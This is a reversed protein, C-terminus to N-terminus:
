IISVGSARLGFVRFGPASHMCVRSDWLAFGLVGFGTNIYYSSSRPGSFIVAVQLFHYVPLYRFLTCTLGFM